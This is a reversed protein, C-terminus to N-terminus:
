IISDDSTRRELNDRFKDLVKQFTVLEEETVGELICRDMEDYFTKIIAMKEKATKTLYVYKARKDSQSAETYILDNQEMRKILNSAVSKSIQLRSEIDKIFTKEDKSERHSLIHLVQGQPGALYDIGQQKSLRTGLRGVSHMFRKLEFLPREM